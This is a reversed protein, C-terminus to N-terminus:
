RNDADGPSDIDVLSGRAWETAPLVIDRTPYQSLFSRMTEYRQYEQRLRPVVAASILVPHGRREDIVPFFAAIEDSRTAGGAEDGPVEGLADGVAGGAAAALRYFTEEAVLPMDAPLVFFWATDVVSAGRVISAVMGEDYRDNRVTCVWRRGTLYRELRAGEHGTVVIVRRCVAEAVDLAHDIMPRGRFPVLPKFAGMRESYGAAPVVCDFATLKLAAIDPSSDQAPAM